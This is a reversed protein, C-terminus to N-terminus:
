THTYSIGCLEDLRRFDTIATFGEEVAMGRIDASFM